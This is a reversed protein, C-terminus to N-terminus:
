RFVNTESVGITFIGYSDVIYVLVEEWFKRHAEWCGLRGIAIGFLFVSLQFTEQFFLFYRKKEIKGSSCKFSFYALTIVELVLSLSTHENVVLSKM